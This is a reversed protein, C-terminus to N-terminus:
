GRRSVTPARNRGIRGIGIPAGSGAAGDVGHLRGRRRPRVEAGPRARQGRRLLQARRRGLVPAARPVARAGRRGRRVRVAPQRELRTQGAPDAHQRRDLGRLRHRLHREPVRLRALHRHALHTTENFVQVRDNNRDAVYIRGISDTAVGHVADFEGRGNGNEGWSTVFNGEADLKVVRSNDSDAVFISGDELFAVDQPRNFHAEDDGPGGAGLSMVLESGDNSFAHVQHNTEDVVWVKRDPDFPNIKIKHPGAGGAFMEDWQTWADILNGDGDVVFISNRWVRNEGAELANLGISGVYGTFGEPVPDPLRIEGRQVVFIRDPSEAFVGTPSGFAYGDEAFPKLWGDVAEYPGSTQELLAPGAFLGSAVVVAIVLLFKRM